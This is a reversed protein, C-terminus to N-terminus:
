FGSIKLNLDWVGAKNILTLLLKAFSIIILYFTDIISVTWRADCLLSKKSKKTGSSNKHM